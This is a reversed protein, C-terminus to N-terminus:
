NAAYQLGAVGHQAEVVMDLIIGFLLRVHVTLTNTVSRILSLTQAVGSKM